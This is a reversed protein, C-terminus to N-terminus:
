GAMAPCPSCAWPPLPASEPESASSFLWPPAGVRLGDGGPDLVPDLVPILAKPVRGADTGCTRPRLAAPDVEAAQM